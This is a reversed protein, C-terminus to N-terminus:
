CVNGRRWIDRFDFYCACPEIGNARSPERVGFGLEVQGVESEVSLSM